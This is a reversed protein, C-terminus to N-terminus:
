PRWSEFRHELFRMIEAFFVGWLGLLLVVLLVTGSKLAAAAQNLIYGLGQNGALLEAAIVGVLAQGGALRLGTIIFPLAGPLVVTRIKKAESAGFVSSVDLLVRSTAQVGIMTNVVMTVFCFFFVIFVKSTLGIGLVLVIMPIIAVNPTSYLVTLWPDLVYNARRWWGAAFGVIVGIVIALSLGIVYEQFTVALHGWIQGKRLQDVLTALVASPSSMIVPNLIRLRAGAEWLTLVFVLGIVGLIAREHRRYAAAARVSLPRPGRAIKDATASGASALPVDADNGPREPVVRSPGAAPDTTRM